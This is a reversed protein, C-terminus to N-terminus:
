SKRSGSKRGCSECKGIIRIELEEVEFRLRVAGTLPFRAMSPEEVDTVSGCERCVLHQHPKLNADFRGANETTSIRRVLRENKLCELIRYVTALSLSALGSGVRAHITEATPHGTDAALARYVALRQPTVRIRRARCREVFDDCRQQVATEAVGRKPTGAFRSM